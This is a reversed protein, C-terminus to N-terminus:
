LGRKRDAERKARSGAITRLCRKCTVHKIEVPLATSVRVGCASWTAGAVQKFHITM